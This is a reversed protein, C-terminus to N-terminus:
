CGSAASPTFRFWYSDFDGSMDALIRDAMERIPRLPHDKPVRQELDVYSFMHVQVKGQGRM